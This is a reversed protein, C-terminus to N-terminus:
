VRGARVLFALEKMLMDLYTSILKAVLSPPRPLFNGEFSQNPSLAM